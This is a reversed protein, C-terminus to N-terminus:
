AQAQGVVEYRFLEVDALPFWELVRRWDAPFRDRVGALFDYTFDAATRGWLEYDVPLKIGADLIAEAVQKINWDWIPYFYRRRKTGLVGQQQMLNRRMIGDAARMGVATYMAPNGLQRCLIDDIDALDYAPFNIARIVAVREPTQFFFSNLYKWFLPHPLRIIHQGFWREYYALSENVWALGPIWDLYYPVIEFHPRLYLWAAISDKGRSFSLLIRDGSLERVRDILAQGRLADGQEDLALPSIFNTM